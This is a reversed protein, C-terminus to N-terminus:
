GNAEEMNEYFSLIKKLQEPYIKYGLDIVDRIDQQENKCDVKKIYTKVEFGNDITVIGINYVWMVNLIKM